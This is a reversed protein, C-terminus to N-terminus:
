CTACLLEGAGSWLVAMLVQLPRCSEESFMIQNILENTGLQVMTVM